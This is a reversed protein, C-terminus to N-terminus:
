SGVKWVHVATEGWRGAEREAVFVLKREEDYAAAGFTGCERDFVEEVPGEVQYPLVEWPKKAGAVVEALEKPDYFLIQPQYPYAHYGKSSACPDGGCQAETGYCNEGLGKRGFILVASGKETEIWVGGGWDDKARYDPFHCLEPDEWVCEVIEPYFLLALAELSAGARPPDGEEWPALAYLTPGQSGGNAGAENHNGAILWKGGLEEKAFGLPAKLLYNCTKQNHFEEEVSPRKGIHWVGWGGSMDLESWGLSDQDYGAVGYWDRLNWAIKDVNPLYSLGDVDRYVCGEAYACSEKLGGTIDALPRLVSAQPLRDFRDTIVSPPIDIEGVRDNEVHGAVYLSGPYGDAPGAPDGGPYYTLAHGSYTWEEGPPFAFAGRYVLNSPNLLSSKGVPTEEVTKAEEENSPEVPPKGMEGESYSVTLRPRLAIKDVVTAGYDGGPAKWPRKGDVTLWTAGDPVYSREPWFDSGSGETWRNIVRYLAIEMENEPNGEYRYLEVTARDVSINEPLSFLDWYLLSRRHEEGEGFFVKLNEAGGLNANPEADEALIADATGGYYSDPSVGAQFAVMTGGPALSTTKEPRVALTPAEVSTTAASIPPADNERWRFYNNEMLARGLVGYPGDPNPDALWNGGCSHHVFVLKVAEKPPDIDAISDAFCLQSASAFIFLFLLVYVIKPRRLKEM